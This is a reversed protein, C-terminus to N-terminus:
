REIERTSFYDPSLGLRQLGARFEPGAYTLRFDIEDARWQREASLLIQLRYADIRQVGRASIHVPAKGARKLFTFLPDTGRRTRQPGLDHFHVTDTM